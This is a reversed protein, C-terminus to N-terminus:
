SVLRSAQKGKGRFLGRSVCGTRRKHWTRACQPQGSAGRRVHEGCGLCLPRSTGQWAAVHTCAASSPMSWMALTGACLASALDHRNRNLLLLEHRNRNFLFSRVHDVLWGHRFSDCPLACTLMFQLSVARRRVVHQLSTGARAVGAQCAACGAGGFYRM